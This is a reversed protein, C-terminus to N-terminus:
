QAGEPEASWVITVRQRERSFAPRSTRTDSQERTRWILRGSNGYREIHTLANRTPTADSPPVRVWVGEAPVRPWWVDDDTHLAGRLTRDTPPSAPEVREWQALTAGGDALWSSEAGVGVDRAIVSGTDSVTEARTGDPYPKLYWTFTTSEGRAPAPAIGTRIGSALAIDVIAAIEPGGKATTPPLEGMSPPWFMVLAALEGRRSADAHFDVAIVRTTGVELSIQMHGTPPTMASCSLFAISPRDHPILVGGDPATHPTTDRVAVFPVATALGDPGVLNMAETGLDPAQRRTPFMDPLKEAVGTVERGLRDLTGLDPGHILLHVPAAATAMVDSGM